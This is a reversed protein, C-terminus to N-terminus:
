IYMGANKVRCLARWFKVLNPNKNSFMGDPLGAKM